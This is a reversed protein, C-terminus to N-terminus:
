IKKTFLDQWLTARHDNETKEGDLWIEKYANSNPLFEESIKIALNNIQDIDQGFISAIVNRNVDGCAFFQILIINIM